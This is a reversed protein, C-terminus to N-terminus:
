RKHLRKRGPQASNDPMLGTKVGEWERQGNWWFISTMTMGNPTWLKKINAEPISVIPEGRRYVTPYLKELEHHSICKKIQDWHVEQDVKLNIHVTFSHEGTRAVLQYPGMWSTQIKPGAYATPRQVFVWDGVKLDIVLVVLLCCSSVGHVLVGLPRDLSLSLLERSLPRPALEPFPASM